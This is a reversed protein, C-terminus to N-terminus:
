PFGSAALEIEQVGGNVIIRTKRAPNEAASKRILCRSTDPAQRLNRGGTPRRGGGPPGGCQGARYKECTFRKGLTAPSTTQVIPATAICAM